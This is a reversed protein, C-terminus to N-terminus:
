ASTRRAQRLARVAPPLHRLMSALRHLYASRLAADPRGAAASWARLFATSPLLKGRLFRLRDPISQASVWNLILAERPAGVARLQDQLSTQVPLDLAAAVQTGEPLMRLAAGLSSTADLRTALRAVARWQEPSLVRIVRRLDELPRVSHPGNVLAHLAVSLARAPEDLVTIHSGAITMTTTASALVQWARDPHTLLPALQHHLDIRAGDSSRGWDSAHTPRDGALSDFPEREFGHHRLVEGAAAVDRPAVLLDIDCSDRTETPEYLWRRLSLGKLLITRVGARAFAGCVEATAAELALARAQDAFVSPLAATM